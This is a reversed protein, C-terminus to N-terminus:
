LKKGSWDARYFAESWVTKIRKLEIKYIELEGNVRYQQLQEHLVQEYSYAQQVKPFNQNLVTKWLYETICPILGKNLNEVRENVNGSYGVKFIDQPKGKYHLQLLYTTGSEINSTSESRSQSPGPGTLGGNKTRNLVLADHRDRQRIIEPADIIKAEEVKLTEVKSSATPGLKQEIDLAYSAWQMGTLYSGFITKLDPFDVFRYAKLMPLGYPWKYKGDDNYHDDPIETGISNLVKEVDLQDTGLQVRGLLRGQHEPLTPKGKTGALLVWDGPSSEKLFKERGGKSNFGLAPYTEPNFGWVKTLFIKIM